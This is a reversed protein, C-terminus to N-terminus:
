SIHVKLNMSQLLEKQINIREELWFNEDSNPMNVYPIEVKFSDPRNFTLKNKNFKDARMNKYREKCGILISDNPFM